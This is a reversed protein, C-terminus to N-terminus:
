GADLEAARPAPDPGDSFRFAPARNDPDRRGARDRPVRAPGLPPADQRAGGPDPASPHRPPRRDGPPRDALQRGLRPGHDALADTPPPTVQRSRRRCATSRAPEHDDRDDHGHHDHRDDHHRPRRRRRRRRPPRRDGTTTTDPHDHRSTPARDYDHRSRETTTHEDHHEHDHSATGGNSYAILGPNPVVSDPYHPLPGDIRRIPDHGDYFDTQGYGSYVRRSDLRVRPRERLRPHRQRSRFSCGTHGVEGM